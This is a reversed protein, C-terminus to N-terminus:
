ALVLEIEYLHAWRKGTIFLRNEEADYAIGNLVNDIDGNESNAIGSLDIWGKVQGTQPNIIAIREDKWINAYIDGEIYELENLRTVPEGDHHVEVQRVVEFTEPDLFFLTATGDSMILLSGNHTIGWGDTPYYFEQLLEFSHKDYVFGTNSKWTLQIIKDDFITIGEGFFQDSLVHLQQIEGTELEVRRLTSNGYLGTSEYLTGNEFVLGQTFADSDHPYVNVVNYTYVFTTSEVNKGFDAAVTSIDLINIIEDNNLDAMENWNLDEPTSGFAIAVIAIDLINITGDNNLDTELFEPIVVTDSTFGGIEDTYDYSPYTGHIGVNGKVTGTVTVSVSHSGTESAYISWSTEVFDGATINGLSQQTTEELALELGEQLEITASCVSASYEYTNFSAPCPYTINAEVEFTDGRNVNNPMQLEVTWPHVWLGWYNIYEWLNLFTSYTMTTSAGGYTGGWADKNWPDHMIIHTDNYGIVVRYHGYVKEQTWWMLVIMPEGKNILSKLEEITLDWREFAAYGVKRTTYGTINGPMENGLSISLNSFHVARRLEDTYTVYPYTRAVDAIEAQSIDEGYYDFVMELAAVGCYYNNSQYHFPVSLYTFDGAKVGFKELLESDSITLIFTASGILLLLITSSRINM